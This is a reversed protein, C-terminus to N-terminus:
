GGRFTARHIPSPGLRALAQLHAPTGYGKSQALTYGPFRQDLEVMMRDRTVKAVISAAAISLSLGDGRPFSAECPRGPGAQTLGLDLLLLDIPRGLADVARRCAAALAPVIGACDIEQPTAVGIGFRALRAIPQFLRERERPSLRKSDDIGVLDGLDPHFTAGDGAPATLPSMRFELCAVVAPGALAGRGVEDCGAIALTEAGLIGRTARRRAEEDFV